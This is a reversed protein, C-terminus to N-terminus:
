SYEFLLRSAVELAETLSLFFLLFCVFLVFFLLLFSFRLSLFLYIALTRFEPPNM